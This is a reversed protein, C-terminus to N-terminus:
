KSGKIQRKKKMYGEMSTKGIDQLRSFLNLEMVDATSDDYNDLIMKKLESLQKDLKDEIKKPLGNKEQQKTKM